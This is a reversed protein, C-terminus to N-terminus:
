GGRGPRGISGARSRRRGGDDGAVARRLGAGLPCRRSAGGAPGGVTTAPRAAGRRGAKAGARRGQGARSPAPRSGGGRLRPAPAADAVAGRRGPRAPVARATSRWCRRPPSGSRRRTAPPRTATTATARGPALRPLRAALPRRERVSVPSIAAAAVLGQVAWATSQANVSGGSLAFGGDPRQVGRLYRSAAAADRGQTGPRRAGAARRRHQRRRQGAGARVGLRRRPEPARAALGRLASNGARDRRGGAPRPDRLRDPEGPRECSGDEGRRALLRAVLDHGRFHARISGPARAAALITRELDGTTASRASPAPAPLRGAHRRRPRRRAPQGRGGRARADGLRDDGPESEEGRAFGFGGDDNQAAACGPSRRRRLRRRLREARQRRAASGAILCPARAACAAGAAIGRPAPRAAARRADLRVRLARPLPAADAGDGPRRGARPRRQRGRPRHQLPAGRASLALFRDLSQEGGYTVMLSFDLLAGYAFGPSRASWRRPRLPRGAPATLWRSRRRRAGRVAGLRGDAVPDVPGPRALLQLGPGSLAGVAFGPRRRRARLRRLRRHRHDAVVNPIPSFAVRGAVRARGAGRGPRRDALAPALARVLRLRRAPCRRPGAFSALQWSM